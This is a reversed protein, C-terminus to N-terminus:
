KHYAPETRIDNKWIWEISVWTNGRYVLALIEGPQSRDEKTFNQAVGRNERTERKKYNGYVTFTIQALFFM